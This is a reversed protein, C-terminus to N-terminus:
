MGVKLQVDLGFKEVQNLSGGSRGQLETKAVSDHSELNDVRLGDLVGDLIREGSAGSTSPVSAFHLSHTQGLM